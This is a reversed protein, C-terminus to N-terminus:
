PRRTAREVRYFDPLATLRELRFGDVSGEPTGVVYVPRRRMWQGLVDATEGYWAPVITRDGTAHDVYTRYALPPALVWSAVLIADDPTAAIIANAQDLARHDRPQNFYVRSQVLMAAIVIGSAAVAAGRAIRGRVFSFAYGCLVAVAVFLPLDYRTVDSEDRFGFAFVASGLACIVLTAIRMDRRRLGVVLGACAAILGLGYERLLLAATREVGALFANSAYAHFAGNLDVDSAVVLARFGAWTAPHDYDWFARGSMGLAAVPDVGHVTVYASRLPLYVFPLAATVVALVMGAAVTRTRTEHLRAILVVILGPLMCLAIPHMAVTIGFVVAAIFFDRESASRCWRMVLCITAAFGLTALAHVDARTAVGWAVSGAAFLLAAVLAATEDRRLERVIAGICWAAGSMAAASLLSMRWAVSGFPLLHTFAWGILTYLPLGPPHAIGLIYPVTDMEGVDWYGATHYASVVYLALPALWTAARRM